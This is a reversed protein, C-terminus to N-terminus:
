RERAGERETQRDRDERRLTQRTRRANTVRTLETENLTENLVRFKSVSQKEFNGELRKKSSFFVRARKLSLSLSLSSSSSESSSKM